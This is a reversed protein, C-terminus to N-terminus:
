SYTRPIKLMVTAYQMMNNRNLYRSLSQLLLILVAMYTSRCNVIGALRALFCWIGSPTHRTFVHVNLAFTSEDCRLLSFFPPLLPLLHITGVIFRVCTCFPILSKRILKMKPERPERGKPFPLFNDVNFSMSRM